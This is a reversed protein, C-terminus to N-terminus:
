RGLFCKLIPICVGVSNPQHGDGKLHAAVRKGGSFERIDGLSSVMELVSLSRREIM